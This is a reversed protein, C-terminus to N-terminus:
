GARETQLFCAQNGAAVRRAYATSRAHCASCGTGRGTVPSSSRCPVLGRGVVYKLACVSSEMGGTTSMCSQSVFKGEPPRQSRCQEECGKRSHHPWPGVELVQERAWPKGERTGVKSRYEKCKVKSKPHTM